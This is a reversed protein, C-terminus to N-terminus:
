AAGHGLAWSAADFARVTWFLKEADQPTAWSSVKVAVVGTARNIYIMQGHIGLALMVDGSPGPFWFGNHYMGGPMFTTDSSVTFASRSDADGAFTDDVWWSPLVATGDLAFGKNVFLQGFRALDRMAASVGGDFMGFGASDIGVHANYEAGMPQWLRQSMVDAAHAGTAGQIVFGLVDTECSKYEFAGGHPSKKSLTALFGLLTDPVNPHRKPAWGIAQELLRVEANEDLYEESFDIGTRMDVLHRVLAGDYGSGLLEPVYHTVPADLDLEGTTALLCATTATLSKSVSMLLHMGGRRYDGYYQEGVIQGQHVVMWGDTETFDMVEAFTAARGEWPHAVMLTDLPGPRSGFETTREGKLIRHVPLFAEINQMSWRMYPAFQWQELSPPYASRVYNEVAGPLTIAGTPPAPNFVTSM